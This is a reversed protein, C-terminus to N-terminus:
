QFTCLRFAFLMLLVFSFHLLLGMDRSIVKILEEGLVIFEIILAILWGALFEISHTVKKSPTAISRLSLLGGFIELRRQYMLEIADIAYIHLVHLGPPPKAERQVDRRKRITDVIRL